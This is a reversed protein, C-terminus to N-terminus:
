ASVEERFAALVSSGSVRKSLLSRNLQRAGCRGASNQERAGEVQTPTRENIELNQPDSERKSTFRLLEPAVNSCELPNGPNGCEAM